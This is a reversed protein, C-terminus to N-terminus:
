TTTEEREREDDVTRELQRFLKILHEKQQKLAPTDDIVRPRPTDIEITELVRTPKDSLLLVRDALVLAEEIDHTVFVVTKKTEQWISIIESRLRRRTNLDLASFPEDM